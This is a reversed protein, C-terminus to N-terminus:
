FYRDRRSGDFRKSRLCCKKFGAVPAARAYITVVSRKTSRSRAESKGCVASSTPKPRSVGGVSARSRLLSAATRSREPGHCVEKPTAGPGDHARARVGRSLLLVALGFAIVFPGEWVTWFSPMGESLDVALLVVGFSTLAVGLYILVQRHRGLDFSVVWFLGGLLAYFASTSRALYGVVPKDPLQGMGLTSHISDMWTNPAAVFILALLSFSGIMRLILKLTQQSNV